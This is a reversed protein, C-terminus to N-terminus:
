PALQEQIPRPDPLDRRGIADRNLALRRDPPTADVPPGTLDGERQPAAMVVFVEDLKYPDVYPVVEAHKLLGDAAHVADIRGIPFGSPFLSEPSTVVRDGVRVDDKMDIYWMNCILRFSGDAHIVGDYARLRQRQVMAGVKCDPHHLTAVKSSFDAVETVIGVVGDPTLVCLNPRLGHRAGRDITLMGKLSDIVKVPELMLEPHDEVFSMQYRLRRNEDYIERRHTLETFLTAVEKELANNEERLTDYTFALDVVYDVGGEVAARAELFPYATLDVLRTVFRHMFTSETGTVLSLMSLTVLVM